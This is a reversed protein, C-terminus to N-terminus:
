TFAFKVLNRWSVYSKHLTAEKTSLVQWMRQLGEEFNDSGCTYSLAPSNLINSGFLNEICNKFEHVTLTKKYIDIEFLWEYM